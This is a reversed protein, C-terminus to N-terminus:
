LHSVLSWYCEVSGFGPRYFVGGDLIWICLVRQRDDKLNRPSYVNTPCRIPALCWAMRQLNVSLDSTSVPPVRQYTPASVWARWPSWLWSFDTVDFCMYVPLPKHSSCLCSALLGEKFFSFHTFTVFVVMETDQFNVLPTWCDSFYKHISSQLKLLFLACRHCEQRSICGGGWGGRLETSIFTRSPCSVAHLDDFSHTLPSESSKSHNTIGCGAAADTCTVREAPSVM